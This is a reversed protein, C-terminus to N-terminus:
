TRRCPVCPCLPACPCVYTRNALFCWGCLLPPPFCVGNLAHWTVNLYLQQEHWQLVCCPMVANVDRPPVCTRFHLTCTNSSCRTFKCCLGDQQSSAPSSSLGAVWHSWGASQQQLTLVGDAAFQFTGEGQGGQQGRGCGCLGGGCSSEVAGGAGHLGQNRTHTVCGVAVTGRGKHHPPVEQEASPRDPLLGSCGAACRTPCLVDVCLV